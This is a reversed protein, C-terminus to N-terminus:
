TQARAAIKKVVYAANQGLGPLVMSSFAYQFSRGCFFLGPAFVIISLAVPIMPSNWDLPVQGQDPGVLFTPQDAAVEYAIDCGTHSAGVV